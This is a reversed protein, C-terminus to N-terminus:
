LAQPSAVILMKLEVGSFSDYSFYVTEKTFATISTYPICTNKEASSQCRVPGLFPPTRDSPASGGMLLECAITGVLHACSVLGTRANCSV